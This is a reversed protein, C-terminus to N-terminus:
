KLQLIKTTPAIENRISDSEAYNPAHCVSIAGVTLSATPNGVYLIKM